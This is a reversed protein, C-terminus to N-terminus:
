TLWTCGILHSSIGYHPSVIWSRTTLCSSSLFSLCRLFNPKTHHLVLGLALAFLCCVTQFSGSLSIHSRHGFISMNGAPGSTDFDDQDEDDDDGDEDKTGHEHNLHTSESDSNNDSDVDEPHRRASSSAGASKISELEDM